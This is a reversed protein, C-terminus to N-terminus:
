STLPLLGFHVREDNLMSRIQEGLSNPQDASKLLRAAAPLAHPEQVSALMRRADDFRGAMAAAVGAHFAAWAGKYIERAEEEEILLAAADQISQFRTQDREAAELAHKAFEYALPKFQEESEFEIFGDVREARDFTLVHPPQGWLWHVAVNLYSGRSWASPQFEVVSLWYGRDAFWVRSRGKRKFGNPQLVAKAAAAILRTHDNM